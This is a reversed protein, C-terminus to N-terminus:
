IESIIVQSVEPVGTFPVLMWDIHKLFFDDEDWDITRIMPGQADDDVWSQDRIGVFAGGVGGVRKRSEVEEIRKFQVGHGSYQAIHALPKISFALPLM